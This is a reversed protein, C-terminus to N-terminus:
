NTTIKVTVILLKKVNEDPIINIQLTKNLWNAEIANTTKNKLIRTVTWKNYYLYYMYDSMIKDVPTEVEYYSRVSQTAGNKATVQYNEKVHLDKNIPFDKPFDPPFVENDFSKKTAQSFSTPKNKGFHKYKYKASVLLLFGLVIVLIVALM